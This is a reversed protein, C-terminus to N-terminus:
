ACTSEAFYKEGLRDVTRVGHTYRELHDGTLRPFDVLAHPHAPHALGLDQLADGM